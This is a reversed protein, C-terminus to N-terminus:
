DTLGFDNLYNQILDRRKRGLERFLDIMQEEM